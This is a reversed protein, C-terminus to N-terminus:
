NGRDIPQLLDDAVEDDDEDDKKWRKIMMRRADKNLVACWTRGSRDDVAAWRGKGREGSEKGVERERGM